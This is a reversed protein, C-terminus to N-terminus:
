PAPRRLLSLGGLQFVAFGYLFPWWLGLARYALAVVLATEIPQGFLTLIFTLAGETVGIGVPTPSVVTVVAALSVGAVVLALPAAQGFARLVLAFLLLQLLKAAVGLGIVALHAPVAQRRLAALAEGGEAMLGAVRDPAILDRRVVRQAVQNLSQALTVAAQEFRAPAALAFLLVAYQGLAVAVVVLVPVAVLANLQGRQALVGAAALAFVGLVLYNFVAFVIVAITARAPSHGRRQANAAFLAFTSLSATPIAVLTFNNALVPPLVGGYSLPLGVARHAAWIQAAQTAQWAAQVLFALALWGPDGQRLVAVVSELRGFQTILLITALLLLAILLFRRM